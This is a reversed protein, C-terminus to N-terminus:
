AAKGSEEGPQGEGKKDCKGIQANMNISAQTTQAFFLHREVPIGLLIFILNLRPELKTKM